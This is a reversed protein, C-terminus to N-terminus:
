SVIKVITVKAFCQYYAGQDHDTLRFCTPASHFYIKIEKQYYGNRQTPLLEIRKNGDFV